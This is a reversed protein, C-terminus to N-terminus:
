KSLNEVKFSELVSDYFQKAEKYRKEGNEEVTRKKLDVEIIKKNIPISTRIVVIPAPPTYIEEFQVSEVGDVIVNKVETSEFYDPVPIEFTESKHKYFERLTFNNPNNIITVAIAGHPTNANPDYIYIVLEQQEGDREEVDINREAPYMFEFGYKDNQYIKWNLNNEQQNNDQITARSWFLVILLVVIIIIVFITIIKKM